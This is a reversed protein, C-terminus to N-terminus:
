LTGLVDMLHTDEELNLKKKLRHRSVRVSGISVGLMQAIEKTSLKLNVLLLHRIEGESFEFNSQKLKEILGPYVEKYLRQFQSWDTETLIKQEYLKNLGENTASTHVDIVDKLQKEIQDIVKNKEIFKRTFDNLKTKNSELERLLDQRLRGQKIRYKNLLLLGCLILAVLIILVSNRKSRQIEQEKLLVVNQFKMQDIAKEKEELKYKIHLENIWHQEEMRSQVKSALVYKEAYLFANQYDGQEKSWIMMLNYYDTESSPIKSIEVDERFLNIYRKAESYNRLGLFVNSLILYSDKIGRHDETSLILDISEKSWALARDYSKKVLNINALLHACTIQGDIDKLKKYVEYSELGLEQSKELNGKKFYIAAYDEIINALFYENKNVKFYNFAENLIKESAVLDDNALHARGLIIKSENKELVLGLSDYLRVALYANEISQKHLKLFKYSESMGLLAEAQGKSDCIRGFLQSSENFYHISLQFKRRYHYLDGLLYAFEAKLRQNSTFLYYDLAYEIRNEAKQLDGKNLDEKILRAYKTLSDEIANTNEHISAHQIPETAKVFNCVLVFHFVILSLVGLRFRINSWSFHILWSM